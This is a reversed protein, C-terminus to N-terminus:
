RIYSCEEFGQDNYATAKQASSAMLTGRTIQMLISKVKVPSGEIIVDFHFESEDNYICEVYFKYSKDM